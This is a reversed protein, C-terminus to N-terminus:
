VNSVFKHIEEISPDKKNDNVFEDFRFVFAKSERASPAKGKTQLFYFWMYIKPFNGFLFEPDHFFLTM